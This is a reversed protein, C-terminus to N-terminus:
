RTRYGVLVSQYEPVLEVIEFEGTPSCWWPHGPWSSAFENASKITDFCKVNGPVSNLDMCRTSTAPVWGDPETTIWFKDGHNTVIPKGPAASRAEKGVVIVAFAM